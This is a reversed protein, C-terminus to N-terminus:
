LGFNPFTYETMEIEVVTDLSVFETVGFGVEPLTECVMCTMMIVPDTKDANRMMMMM